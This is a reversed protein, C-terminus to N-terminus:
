HMQKVQPIFAFSDSDDSEVFNISPNLDFGLFPEKDTDNTSMLITALTINGRRGGLIGVHM